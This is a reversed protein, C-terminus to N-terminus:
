RNSTVIFSSIVQVIWSGVEMFGSFDYVAWISVISTLIFNFCCVYVLAIFFGGRVESFDTQYPSVDRANQILDIGLACSMIARALEPEKTYLLAVLVLSVLSFLPFTYPALSIFANMHSTDKSFTYEFHGSEEEIKMGKAKNGVLNSVISHKLEHIFVSIRGRMIIAILAGISTSFIHLYLPNRRPLGSFVFLRGILVLSLVALILLSSVSVFYFLGGVKGEYRKPKSFLSM